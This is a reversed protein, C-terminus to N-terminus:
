RMSTKICYKKLPVIAYCKRTNTREIARARTTQTTQSWAFFRTRVRALFIKHALTRSGCLRGDTKEKFSLCKDHIILFSPLFVNM